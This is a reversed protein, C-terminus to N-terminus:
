RLFANHNFCEISNWLHELSELPSVLPFTSPHKISEMGDINPIDEKCKSEFGRDNERSPTDVVQVQILSLSSCCTVVVNTIRSSIQAGAQSSLSSSLGLSPSSVVVQNRSFEQYSTRDAHLRHLRLRRKKKRRRASDYLKTKKYLLLPRPWVPKDIKFKRHSSLSSATSVQIWGIGEKLGEADM